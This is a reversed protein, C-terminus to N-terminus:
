APQNRPERIRRKTWFYARHAKEQAQVLVTSNTGPNLVMRTGLEVSQTGHRYPSRDPKKSFDAEGIAIGDWM